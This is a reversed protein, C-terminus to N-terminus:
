LIPSVLTKTIVRLLRSQKKKTIFLVKTAGFLRVAELATGTKNSRVEGALYVINYKKLVNYVLKSFKIQHPRLKYM